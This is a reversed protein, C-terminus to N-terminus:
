LWPWRAEGIVPAGVEALGGPLEGAALTLVDTPSLEAVVAGDARRLQVRVREGDAPLEFRVEHGTAALQRGFRAADRVAGHAAPGPGGSRHLGPSIGPPPVDFNM